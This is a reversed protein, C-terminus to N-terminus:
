PPHPAPLLVPLHGPGERWGHACAKSLLIVASNLARRVLEKFEGGAGRSHLAPGLPLLGPPVRSGAPILACDRPLSQGRSAAVPVSCPSGTEGSPASPANGEGPVERALHSCLASAPFFWIRPGPLAEPGRGEWGLSPFPPM